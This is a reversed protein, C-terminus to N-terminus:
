RHNNETISLDLYSRNVANGASEICCGEKMRYHLVKAVVTYCSMLLPNLFSYSLYCHFYVMCRKTISSRAELNMKSVRKSLLGLLYFSALEYIVRHSLLSYPDISFIKILTEM